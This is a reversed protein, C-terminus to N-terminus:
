HEISPEVSHGLFISVSVRTGADLKRFVQKRSVDNYVSCDQKQALSCVLPSMRSFTKAEAISANAAVADNACPGAVPPLVDLFFLVWVLADFAPLAEVVRDFVPLSFASVSRGGAPLLTAITTKSSKCHGSQARAAGSTLSTELDSFIGTTRWSKGNGICLQDNWAAMM